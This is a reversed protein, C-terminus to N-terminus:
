TGMVSMVLRLRRSEECSSPWRASWSGYADTTLRLVSEARADTSDRRIGWKRESTACKGCGVVVCEIGSGPDVVITATVDHDGHAPITGAPHATRM